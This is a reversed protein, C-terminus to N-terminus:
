WNAGTHAAFFEPTVRKDTLEWAMAKAGSECVEIIHPKAPKAWACSVCKSEGVKNQRRLALAGRATAGRAV